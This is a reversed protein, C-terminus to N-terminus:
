MIVHGTHTAPGCLLRLAIEFFRTCSPVAPLTSPVPRWLRECVTGVFPSNM